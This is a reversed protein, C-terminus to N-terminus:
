LIRIDDLYITGRWVSDVIFRFGFHTVTTGSAGYQEDLNVDVSHWNRPGSIGGTQPDVSFDGGARPFQEGAYMSVLHGQGTTLANTGPATVLAVRAQVRRGALNVFGNNACLPVRIFITTLNPSGTGRFPIALSRSGSPPPIANSSSLAGDSANQSGATAADYEWGETSNTEFDWSACNPGSGQRPACSLTGRPCACQDSGENCSQVASCAAGNGVCNGDQCRDTATCFLGDNCAGTTHNPACAGQANCTDQGSCTTPGSGCNAGVNASFSTTSRSPDCIRCSNNPDFTGSTVCTNGIACGQCQCQNIGENCAQNAGCNRNGAAVCTGGQCSDGVTCFLGDDCGTDNPARRAQCVGGGDCADAEDCASSTSNGCPTGAPLDNPRCAAQENCTDQQSCASAGAGCAKGVATSYAITSRQPDCIRCPNGAEEAGPEVCVGAILCGACTTVCARTAVSCVAGNSCQNVDASCADSEELCTSVGNCAVGDECERPDGQCSGERCADGTTCFLSDDCELGDRNSWGLPNRAPDCIQCASDPDLAEPGFCEGGILCGPCTSECTAGADACIPIPDCSEANTETCLGSGDSEGSTASGELGLDGVQAEDTGVNPVGPVSESGAGAAGAEIPLLPENGASDFRREDLACAALNALGLAALGLAVVGRWGWGSTGLGLSTERHLMKLVRL